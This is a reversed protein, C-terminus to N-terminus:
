TYWFEEVARTVKLTKLPKFRHGEGDGVARRAEECGPHVLSGSSCAVWEEVQGVRAGDRADREVEGGLGDSIEAVSSVDVGAERLLGLTESCVGM